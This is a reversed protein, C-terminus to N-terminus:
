YNNIYFLIGMKHFLKNPQNYYDLSRFGVTKGNEKGADWIRIEHNLVKNNLLFEIAVSANVVHGHNGEFRFFVGNDEQMERYAHNEYDSFNKKPFYTYNKFVTSKECFIPLVKHTYLGKSYANDDTSMLWEETIEPNGYTFRAEQAAFATAVCSNECMQEYDKLGHDVITMQYSDNGLTWSLTTVSKGESLETNFAVNHADLKELESKYKEFDDFYQPMYYKEFEPPITVVYGSPDTFRLPNNFCYSYRNYAQANHEDQIAIDPSLMRGLVPDYMRGNMNVLGFADYHEHLTYGRDFTHSVNDYGFGVPNRRRGWPDYSLREVTSGHVVAALSGQHDKFTYYMQRGGTSTTVFIAFLGTSSTLYHLKKTVGGETVTEYLPTFYRKSKVNTGIFLTQAVRQRDIGYAVSLSDDGQKLSSIKDFATYTVSQSPFLQSAGSAPQLSSVAYPGSGAGYSYSGVGDKMTVNGNPAFAYQAQSYTLTGSLNKATSSALRNFRDYAFTERLDTAADTRALLNGAASWEYGQDTVTQTATEASVRVPLGTVPDFDRVSEAGGGAFQSTNGWRDTATAQWLTTGDDDDSVRDMFGRSDHHWRFARGSPFAVLNRRGFPDYGYAFEWKEGHGIRQSQGSLRGLNDYSFGETVRDGGSPIHVTGDMEGLWGTDYTWFSDGDRGHRETVRGLADYRYWVSDRPTTAVMLEGFANHDYSLVGLSPDTVSATRRNVDYTYSVTTAPDGDVESTKVLGDGYRTFDVEVPTTHVSGYNSSKTVLGAPNYTLKTEQGDFGTVTEEAGGYSHSMSAGDPREALTERGLYDYSHVTFAPTAAGYPHYPASAASLLGTVDNYRYDVYVKLGDMTRDAERLKRRHQDYFTYTGREGSRKSWVFYIPCGFDPTDPHWSSQQPDDCVWRVSREERVGSPYETMVLDGIEDYHYRTVLGNPDIVSDLLGTEDNYSYRTTHGMANTRATVFRGDDSWATLEERPHGDGVDGTVSVPNGFSDYGYIEELPKASGPEATMSTHRGHTMDNQYSVHRMVQDAQIGNLRQTLTVNRPIGLIWRNGNTSNDYTTEEMEFFPMSEFSEGFSRKNSTVNGYGDKVTEEKEFRQPTGDTRRTMSSSLYPAFVGQPVPGLGEAFDGNDMFTYSYEIERFPTTNSIGTTPIGLTQRRPFLLHFDQSLSYDMVTYISEGITQGQTKTFTNGFGIFGRGRTHFWADTFRYEVTRYGKPQNGCQDNTEFLVSDVVNLFGNFPLVPVVDKTSPRPRDLRTPMGSLQLSFPRYSMRTTAGTSTVIERIVDSPPNALSGTNFVRLYLECGYHTFWEAGEHGSARMYLIEAPSVGKTKGVCRLFPNQGAYSTTNARISDISIDVTDNHGGHPEQPNPVWVLKTNRVKRARIGQETPHILYVRRYLHHYRNDRYVKDEIKAISIDSCGDNDFDAVDVLGHPNGEDISNFSDGSVISDADYVVADTFRCRGKSFYFRWQNDYTETRENHVECFLVIDLKGDGNFDGQCLRTFHNHELQHVYRSIETLEAYQSGEPSPFYYTNLTQDFEVKFFRGRAINDSAKDLVLVKDRKDNDFDGVVLRSNPNLSYSYMAAHQFPNGFSSVLAYPSGDLLFFLDPLGDGTMDAIHFDSVNVNNYSVTKSWSEVFAANDNKTILSLCIHNVRRYVCLIEDIGDQDTDVPAMFLIVRGDNIVTDIGSCDYTYGMDDWHYEQGTALVRNNSRFVKLRYKENTNPEQTMLHVLDGEYKMSTDSRSFEFRALFATQQYWEHNEDFYSGLDLSDSIQEFGLKYDTQKWRFALPILRNIVGEENKNQYHYQKYLYRLCKQNWDLNGYDLKYEVIKQGGKSCKVGTLLKDVLSFGNQTQSKAFYKRQTDNRNGQAYLFEIQYIHPTGLQVNGGYSISVPRFSGNVRDNHYTFDMSNGDVDVVRSLHWEIPADTVGHIYYQSTRDADLGYYCVTGDRKMVKFGDSSPKVVSFDYIEPYYYVSDGSVGKILANGDLSLQDDNTFVVSHNADNHLFTYPVRSIKSMGGLSWGIGLIGNGSQSNYELSLNPTMGNVGEPFELPVSITAAGCENVNFEMPYFGWRGDLDQDSPIAYLLGYEDAMNFYPNLDLITYNSGSPASLFGPTLDIHHTATYEHTQNSPLTADLTFTEGQHTGQAHALPAHLAAALAM